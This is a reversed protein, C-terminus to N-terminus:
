PSTEYGLFSEELRIQTQSRLNNHLGALVIVIKYGADAAKCVLGSYNGTKGSQVHGVVLGRRDWSGARKPDELLGLIDDTSEDLAEVVDVSLKRELYGQYRQWYRWDKKRTSVLWPEHGETDRLTADKGIWHSFRRILEAIATEQDIGDPYSSALAAAAFKVKEAILTPTIGAEDREALLMTQALSVVFALGRDADAM